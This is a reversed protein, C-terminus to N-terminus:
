KVVELLTVVIEVRRNKAKGEKTDNSAIPKSSGYGKADIHDISEGNKVLFDVVAQARDKSLKINNDENGTKDTHGEVTTKIEPHKNLLGALTKLSEHSEAKIKSSGTEFFINGSAKRIIEREKKSLPCGDNEKTGKVTPCDDKSDPVGDGDTDVEAVTPTEEKDDWYGTEHKILLLPVLSGPLQAAAKKVSFISGLFILTMTIKTLKKIM